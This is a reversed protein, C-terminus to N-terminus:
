PVQVGNGREPVGVGWTSWGGLYELGREWTSWGGGGKGPVVECSGECVACWEEVWFGGGEGEM